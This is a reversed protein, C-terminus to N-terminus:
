DDKLLTYGILYGEADKEMTGPSFKAFQKRMEELSEYQGHGPLNFPLDKFKMKQISRIELQGFIEGTESDRAGIIDGVKLYSYRKGVRFTLIKSEDVVEPVFEPAFGISENEYKM